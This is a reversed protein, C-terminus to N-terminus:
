FLKKQDVNVKKGPKSKKRVPIEEEEELLRKVKEQEEKILDDNLEVAVLKGDPPLTNLIERTIAGNGAGYEVIYKYEPKLARLVRRITYKSTITVAGVRKYDRFAIKLFNIPNMGNSIARAGVIVM